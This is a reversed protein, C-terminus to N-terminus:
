HENKIFTDISSISKHCESCNAEKWATGIDVPHKFELNERVNTYEITGEKGQGVITHCLNCDKTFQVDTILKLLMMIVGSVDM